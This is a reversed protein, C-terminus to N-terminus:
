RGLHPRWAAQWRWRTVDKPDLRRLNSGDLDVIRLGDCGHFVVQREDPSWSPSQLTGACTSGAALSRDTTVSRRETGHPTMTLIDGNDPRQYYVLIRSGDNSWQPSHYAEGSFNREARTVNQLGTGDRNVVFMDFDEDANGSRGTFAMRTGDPSWAPSRDDPGATVETTDGTQLDLVAIKLVWCCGYRYGSKFALFRGDPSWAPEQKVQAGGQTVQRQHSGDGDMVWLEWQGDINRAFAIKSGDPSWAPYQDQGPGSTLRREDSGDLKGTFIDM